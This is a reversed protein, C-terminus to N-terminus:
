EYRLADVPWVRAAIRAPILAGGVSAIVAAICITIVENAKVVNPINDFTYVSPSWVQLNPNIWILFDQIDNIYWVFMSGSAAGIIAGVIGVAVGFGVFIMAVGGSSAGISKILGIDRTKQYVIMWFICGILVVAVFSVVGFLMTVLIKEKEVADIFERQRQEWTEVLVSGLQQQDDFSLDDGLSLMFKDWQAAVLNRGAEIDAGDALRVLIQSTRAPAFGGSELEQPSMALWEQLFDFDVYVCMDDIEFVGTRSDDALRTVATTAGEASLKGRGTLPLVTLILKLGRELRRVYEGKQNRENIISAGVIVGPALAREDGYYGAEMDFVSEFTGPHRQGDAIDWGEPHESLYKAFAKEHDPPLQPPGSESFSAFPQLQPGLTTTGPYYRDYYLSNAFDNVGKYEDLRIGVVRVPKTFSYGEVRIIGYNYIVPTAEVVADPLERGLQDIFDQYYPFGVLSRNDVVIDSLLGRSREKLTDLFGGMVSIIIIEMAVCLWVGVVAFIAIRKKRLYCLTLFLKYM